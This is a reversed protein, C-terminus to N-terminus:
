KVVLNYIKNKVFIEKVINKDAIHKLVKEDKLLAEKVTQQDADLPMELMTRLKGNVQVAINVKDETLASSDYEYWSPNEFISAKIGLLQWCMEGLHHAVPALMVAFRQLTYLQIEKSCDDIIKTESRFLTT